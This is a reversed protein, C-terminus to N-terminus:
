FQKGPKSSLQLVFHTDMHSLDMVVSLVDVSLIVDKM